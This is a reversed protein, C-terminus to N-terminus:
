KEECKVEKNKWYLRTLEQKDNKNLKMVKFKKKTYLIWITGYMLSMVGEPVAQCIIGPARLLSSLSNFNNFNPCNNILPELCLCSLARSM